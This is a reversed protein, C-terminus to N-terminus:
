VHARGIQLHDEQVQAADPLQLGPSQAIEIRLLSRLQLMTGVGTMPRLAMPVQSLDLAETAELLTDVAGDVARHLPPSFFPGTETLGQRVAQRIVREAGDTLSLFHRITQEPSPGPVKRLTLPPVTGEPLAPVKLSSDDLADLPQATSRDAAQRPPAPAALATAVLPASGAVGGSSGAAAAWGALEPARGGILGLQLAALMAFWRM